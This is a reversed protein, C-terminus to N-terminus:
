KVHPVYPLRAQVRGNSGTVRKLVRSHRWLTRELPTAAVSQWLTRAQTALRENLREFVTKPRPLIRTRYPGEGMGATSGAIAIADQLGGTTDVLGVEKADRGSWVRGQAVDHVASTDMDRGEAVRQLFTQYTSEITRNFLRREEPALPKNPVFLDAYPSTSVGDFTVGLKNELLGEANWLLGFVGISGTTTTTNAVITDAPAAMYYGGSAATGGMSVILPKEEATRKAAHWMAESAAASGGPSNIRLVVAKTSPSTRAEDLAEILPTSGLAQQGSGFPSQGPDGSVINGQGYVIAVTGTGTYTVGTNETPVRGYTSVSLTTLDTAESTGVTERLLSRVEDEYRLGDILGEEVAVSADLVADEEALQQLATSSLGRTEAIASTFRDNITTLLAEMQERNPESLDSRMFSEGASKYKGARVIQPEVGLKDFANKFFPLITAFGNYEFFTQPGVFVSDAASAVFYGKEGMGFEEGSAIVPTGSERLQVVAERVEELTGWSASTGKMRLWVAEIRDDSRANRLAVQLDRLDYSPGEGFAKQFPDDSVREPIPGDIPVTLVSGPQVTPTTDTSLTLAFFFFFLFFVVLGFAILTGLVSATLTSLFRM